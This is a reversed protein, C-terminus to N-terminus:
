QPIKRPAKEPWTQNGPTGTVLEWLTNTTLNDMDVNETLGPGTVAPYGWQNETVRFGEIPAVHVELWDKDCGCYNDHYRSWRSVLPEYVLTDDHYTFGSMENEM